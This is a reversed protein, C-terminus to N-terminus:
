GRGPDGTSAAGRRGSDGTSAAGARGPDGTSAAARRGLAVREMGALDHVREVATFGAERLIAEVADAQGEGHELALFPAATATALRRIVALGDPGAFLAEHPEWRSVEPMVAEGDAIYPPNSVVADVDEVGALLDGRVFRVDLGLRSANARAVDLADGSADTGLVVLDPREHKLALAIAGSGTGVDVVRAGAPLGLAAEVVHETEPRPVLVRRDVALDIMRFGKSGVIYAVPERERRRRVAAQFWRAQAPDLERGPHAILMGRDVGLAFALLVEADLRPTDVGAATLPIVASDLADRVSTAALPRRAM